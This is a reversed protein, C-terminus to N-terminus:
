KSAGTPIPEATKKAALRERELRTLQDRCQAGSEILQAIVHDKSNIADKLQLIVEEATPQPTPVASAQPTSPQSPQRATPASAGVDATGTEAVVIGLLLGCVLGVLARIRRLMTMKHLSMLCSETEFNGLEVSNSREM